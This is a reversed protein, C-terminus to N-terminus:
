AEATVEEAESNEPISESEQIEGNAKAISLRTNEFVERFEEVSISKDILMVRVKLAQLVKENMVEEYLSSRQKEDELARDAISKYFDEGFNQGGGLYMSIKQLYQARLDDETIEFNAESAIKNRILTWRLNRAIADFGEEIDTERSKEDQTKLWRKLFSEPLPLPNAELLKTQFDLFLLIDAQRAYDQSMNQRLFMRASLEDTVTEGFTNQFFAENMEAPIQRKVLKVTVDFNENVEREDNDELGLFYKRVYQPTTEKELQFLNITLQSGKKQTLFVEKMEDTIWNMSLMLDEKELSGGQEKIHLTIMDSEQISDTVEIEEGSRRRANELEDSIKDEDVQVNYREYAMNDVGELTFEPIFAIDFNFSIDQPNSIDFTIKPQELSSIPAGFIKPREAELYKNLTDQLRENVADRLFAQGYMKKVVTPPTKGPRFGKVPAQQAFKKIDSKVKTLYDEKTLTVTLISNLADIDTRVVNSM